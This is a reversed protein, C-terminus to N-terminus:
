KRSSASIMDLLVGEGKESEVAGVGIKSCYHNLIRENRSSRIVTELLEILM